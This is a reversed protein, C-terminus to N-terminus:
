PDGAPADADRGLPVVEPAEGAARREMREYVGRVLDRYKRPVAQQEIARKASGAAERLRQAAETRRQPDAPLGREDFWESVVREDAPATPDRFDAPETRM